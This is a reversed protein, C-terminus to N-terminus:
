AMQRYWLDCSKVAATACSARILPWAPKCVAFGHYLYCRNVVLLESVQDLSLRGYPGFGHVIGMVRQWLTKGGVSRDQTGSVRPVSLTVPAEAAGESSSDFVNLLSVAVKALM